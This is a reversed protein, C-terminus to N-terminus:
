AEPFNRDDWYSRALQLVPDPDKPSLASARQLYFRRAAPLTRVEAPLKECCFMGKQLIEISKEDTVRLACELEKKTREEKSEFAGCCAGSAALALLLPLALPHFRM